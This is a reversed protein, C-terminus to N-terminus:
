RPKSSRALTCRTRDRRQWKRPSLSRSRFRYRNQCVPWSALTSSLCVPAVTRASPLSGLRACPRAGDRIRASSGACHGSGYRRASAPPAQARGKPLLRASPQNREASARRAMFMPEGLHQGPGGVIGLRVRGGLVVRRKLAPGPRLCVRRRSKMGSRSAAIRVSAPWALVSGLRTAHIGPAGVQVASRRSTASATSISAPVHARISPSASRAPGSHTPSRGPSWRRWSSRDGGVPRVVPRRSVTAAKGTSGGSASRPKRSPTPPSYTSVSARPSSIWVPCRATSRSPSSSPLTPASQAAWRSRPPDSARPRVVLRARCPRRAM